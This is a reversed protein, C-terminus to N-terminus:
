LDNESKNRAAKDHSPKEKPLSPRERADRQSQRIEDIVSPKEGIGAGVGVAKTGKEQTSVTTPPTEPDDSVLEYSGSNLIQEQSGKSFIYEAVDGINETGLPIRDSLLELPNQLKLLFEAQEATFAHENRFYDYSQQVSAIDAAAKFIEDGSLDLTDRKYVNFNEELRDHLRQVLAGLDPEPMDSILEYDGQLADQRDFIKWMATSREGIGDAEFADAVVELPNKFQLLYNL